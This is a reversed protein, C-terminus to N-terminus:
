LSMMHILMRRKRVPIFDNYSHLIKEITAKLRFMVPLYENFVAYEIVYIFNGIFLRQLVEKILRREETSDNFKVLEGDIFNVCDIIWENRFNRINRRQLRDVADLIVIADM